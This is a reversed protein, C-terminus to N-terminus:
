NTLQNTLHSLLSHSGTPFRVAWGCGKGKSPVRFAGHNAKPWLTMFSAKATGAQRSYIATLRAFVFLHSKKEKAQHTRTHSHLSPVGGFPRGLRVSPRIHLSSSYYLVLQM